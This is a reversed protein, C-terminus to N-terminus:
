CVRGLNECSLEARTSGGREDLVFFEMFLANLDLTIDTVADLFNDKLVKSLEVDGSLADLVFIAAVLFVPRHATSASCGVFWM